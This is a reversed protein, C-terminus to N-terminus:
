PTDGNQPTISGPPEPHGFVEFPQVNRPGEAQRPFDIKSPEPVFGEGTKSKTVKFKVAGSGSSACAAWLEQPPCSKSVSYTPAQQSPMAHCPSHPAQRGANRSWRGQGRAKVGSSLASEVAERCSRQGSQPAAALKQRTFSRGCSPPRM